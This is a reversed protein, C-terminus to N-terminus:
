RSTTTKRSPTPTSSSKWRRSSGPRTASPSASGSPGGPNCSTKKLAKRVTERGISVVLKRKVLEDALLSMTWCRRGQPAPTCCIAVLQAELAGDIKAPVPPTPRVKREVAAKEGQRIFKRRTRAVTNVHVGLAKAIQADKYRGLPHDQDAMLLLRAHMIRKASNSGNRTLAELREREEAGLRVSLKRERAGDM